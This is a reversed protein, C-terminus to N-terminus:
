ASSSSVRSSYRRATYRSPFHNIRNTGRNQAGQEELKPKSDATHTATTAMQLTHQIHEAMREQQAGNPPLHPLPCSARFTIFPCLPPPTSQPGHILRVTAQTIGTNHSNAVPM